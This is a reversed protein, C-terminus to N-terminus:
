IPNTSSPVARPKPSPSKSCNSRLSKIVASM